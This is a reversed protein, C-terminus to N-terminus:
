QWLNKGDGAFGNSYDKWNCGHVYEYQVGDITTVCYNLSGESVRAAIGYIEKGRSGAFDFLDRVFLLMKGEELMVSYEIYVKANYNGGGAIAASVRGVSIGLSDIQVRSLITGEAGYVYKRNEKVTQECKAILKDVTCSM